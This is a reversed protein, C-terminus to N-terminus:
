WNSERFYGRAIVAARFLQYSEEMPELSAQDPDIVRAPSIMRDVEASFEGGVYGVAAFVAAGYASAQHEPLHLETGLVTARIRNWVASRSAGGSLFHRGRQLGLGTLVELGLREVFAVGELYSRYDDVKSATDGLVFPVAERSFFPFREGAVSLPYRVISSPGNAWADQDWRRIQEKVSTVSGPLSGAGVNSAGGPWFMGDPSLHSYIGSSTQVIETISVGKIVLTTGLVGVTDGVRVAGTALQSTCGDTMGSVILVGSPLGLEAVVEPAVTGIRHGPHILEPLVGRSVGLLELAEIPWEAAVPDIGAKLAHSTDGPLLERALAAIVVDPTSLYRQAPNHQELWAIRALSTLPRASFGAAVLKDLQESGRLDNYLLARGSPRGHSDAPVVTGSTGTVSLARIGRSATGLEHVMEHILTSSVEWYVPAQERAGQPGQHPADLERSRELLQAGTRLSVVVARANATALDIGLVLEDPTGGAM